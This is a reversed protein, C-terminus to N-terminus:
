RNRVKLDWTFREPSNVIETLPTGPPIMYTPITILPSPEVTTADTLRIERRFPDYVVGKGNIITIHKPTTSWEANSM